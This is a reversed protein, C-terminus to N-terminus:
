DENIRDPGNKWAELEKDTDLAYYGGGVHLAGNVATVSLKACPNGDHGLLDRLEDAWDYASYYSTWGHWPGGLTFHVANPEDGLEQTPTLLTNWEGKIEGIDSPACWQFQHLALGPASNAYEPWSQQRNMLVKEWNRSPDRRDRFAQHGCNILMVSSWNKCPYRTQETGLFKKDENVEQEQKVVMVAYKDNRQDWLEAIDEHCLIDCDMFIAWGKYGCLKPIMWRANSFDTGDKEGRRRYWLDPPLTDNGIPTIAVPESSRKIISHALVHYAVTEKADWGIFIPIM